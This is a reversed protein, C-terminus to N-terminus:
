AIEIQAHNKLLFVELLNDFSYYVHIYITSKLVLITHKFFFCCHYKKKLKTISSIFFPCSDLIPYQARCCFYDSFKLM